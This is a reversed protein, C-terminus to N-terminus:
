AWYCKRLNEYFAEFFVFCKVRFHLLNRKPGLVSWNKLFHWKCSNTKNSLHAHSNRKQFEFNCRLAKNKIHQPEFMLEVCVFVNTGFDGLFEGHDSWFVVITNGLINLSELTDLVRGVQADVYRIQGCYMAMVRRFDEESAEAEGSHTRWHTLRRIEAETPVNRYNPPLAFHEPHFLSAYPEPCTFFPHPDQYNITVFFPRRETSNRQMFAIAETTLRETLNWESDQELVASSLTHTYEPHAEM